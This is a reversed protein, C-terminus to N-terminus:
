SEQKKAVRRTAKYRAQKDRELKERRAIERKTLKPQEKGQNCLRRAGGYKPHDCQAHSKGRM